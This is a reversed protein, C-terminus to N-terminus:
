QKSRRDADQANVIKKLWEIRKRPVLGKENLVDTHCLKGDASRMKLQGIKASLQNGNSQRKRFKVARENQCQCIIRLGSLALNVLMPCRGIDCTLCLLARYPRCGNRYPIDGKCPKIEQQMWVYPTARHQHIEPSQGSSITFYSIHWYSTSVSYFHRMRWPLRAVGRQVNLTNGLATFYKHTNILM